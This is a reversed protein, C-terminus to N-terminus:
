FDFALRIKSIDSKLFHKLEGEIEVDVSEKDSARLIGRWEKQGDIAKYSHLEVEKGEGFIFDRPRRLPRGLGPSTVEMTYIDPIYDKEDLMPDIMRSLAECDNIGVGGEKDITIRLVYDSGEKLYEADVPILGLGKAPEAILEWTTEEIREKKTM